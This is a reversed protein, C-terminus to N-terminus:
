NINKPFKVDRIRIGSMEWDRWGQLVEGLSFLFYFYSNFFSYFMESRWREWKKMVWENMKTARPAATHWATYQKQGFLKILLQERYPTTSRTWPRQSKTGWGYQVRVLVGRPCGATKRLQPSGTAIIRYYRDRQTNWYNVSQTSTTTPWSLARSLPRSPLQNPWDQGRSIDGKLHPISDARRLGHWLFWGVTFPRVM